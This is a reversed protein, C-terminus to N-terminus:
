LGGPTSYIALLSQQDNQPYIFGHQQTKLYDETWEPPKEKHNNSLNWLGKKYTGRILLKICLSGLALWLDGVSEAIPSCHWWLNRYELCYACTTLSEIKIKADRLFGTADYQGKKELNWLDM